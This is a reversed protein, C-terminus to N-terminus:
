KVIAHTKLYDTWLPVYQAYLHVGDFTYEANLCGSEDCVVSNVDLYFTDRGNDLEKLRENRVRIAENNIYDGQADREASVNMISMIYIIADPQWEHIQNVMDTYHNIFYNLDGVGMDNIGLMIYVKKYQEQQLADAINVKWNGDKWRGTPDKFVGGLTMGSSCYYTAEKWDSYEYLSVIRSDGIFVADDFYDDSVECFSLPVEPEENKLDDSANTHNMANDTNNEMNNGAINNEPNDDMNGAANNKLNDDMSNDMNNDSDGAISVSEDDSHLKGDGDVSNASMSITEVVESEDQGPAKKILELPFGTLLSCILGGVLLLFLYRYNKWKDM